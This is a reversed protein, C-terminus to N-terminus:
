MQQQFAKIWQSFNPDNPDVAAIHMNEMSGHFQMQDMEDEVLGIITIQEPDAPVLEVPDMTSTPSEGILEYEQGPALQFEEGNINQIIINGDALQVMEEMEQPEYKEVVM